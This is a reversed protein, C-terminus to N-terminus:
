PAPLGTFCPAGKGDTQMRSVQARDIPFRRQCTSCYNFQGTLVQNCVECRRAHTTYNKQCTSCYKLM